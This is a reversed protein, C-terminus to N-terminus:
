RSRSWARSRQPPIFTPNPINPIGNPNVHIPIIHSPPQIPYYPLRSTIPICPGTSDASRGCMSDCPPLRYDSHLLSPVYLYMRIVPRVAAEVVEGVWGVPGVAPTSSTREVVMMERDLLRSPHGIQDQFTATPWGPIQIRIQSTHM